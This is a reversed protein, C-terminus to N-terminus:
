RRSLRLLAPESKSPQPATRSTTHTQAWQTCDDIVDVLLDHLHRDPDSICAQAIGQVAAGVISSATRVTLTDPLNGAMSEIFEHAWREADPVQGLAVDIRKAWQPDPAGDLTELARQCALIGAALARQRSAAAVPVAACSCRLAILVTMRPDASTVGIVSPILPALEARAHDSSYDNVARAVAALLPHTCRPHDSWPEGALYSAFEMFCAGRRPNRHKGRSLVPMLDPSLATAKM